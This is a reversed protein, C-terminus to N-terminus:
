KILEIIYDLETLMSYKNKFARLEKMAQQLLSEYKDEDRVIMSIPKYSGTTVEDSDKFFMRIPTTEVEADEKKQVVLNRIIKRAEELRWKEAAIGDDWTFCKYLESDKDRASELVSSPTIENISNIEEAVKKADAKFIGKIKWEAVM